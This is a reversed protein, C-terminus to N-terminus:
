HTSLGLLPDWYFPLDMLFALNVASIVAPSMAPDRSVGVAAEAPLMQLLPLYLMFEPRPVHEQFPPMFV